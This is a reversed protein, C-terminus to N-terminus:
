KKFISFIGTALKILAGQPVVSLRNRLAGINSMIEDDKKGPTIAAIASAILIILGFIDFSFKTWGAVDGPKPLEFAGDLAPTASSDAASIVAAGIFNEALAADAVEGDLHDPYIIGQHVDASDLVAEINPGRTIKVPEPRAPATFFFSILMLMLLPTKM